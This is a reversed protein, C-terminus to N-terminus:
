KASSLALYGSLIDSNTVPNTHGVANSFKQLQLSVMDERTSKSRTLM